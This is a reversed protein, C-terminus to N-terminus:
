KYVEARSLYGASILCGDKGGADESRKAFRENRVLVFDFINRV